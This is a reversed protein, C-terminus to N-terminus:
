SAVLESMAEYLRNFNEGDITGWGTGATRQRAAARAYEADDALATLQARATEFSSITYVAEVDAYYTSNYGYANYNIVPKGCAIAWRITSSFTTFYIDAQPILRIVWEDSVDIGHGRMLEVQAPPMNPHL